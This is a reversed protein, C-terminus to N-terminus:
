KNPTEAKYRNVWFLITNSSKKLESDDVDPLLDEIFSQIEKQGFHECLYWPLERINLDWYGLIAYIAGDIPLPCTPKIALLITGALRQRESVNEQLEPHYFFSYLGFFLERESVNTLISVLLKNQQENSAGYRDASKKIKEIISQRNM